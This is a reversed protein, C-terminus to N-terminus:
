AMDVIDAEKVYEASIVSDEGYKEVKGIITVCAGNGIDRFKEAIKGSVSVRFTMAEATYMGDKGRFKRTVLLEVAFPIDGLTDRGTLIGTIIITNMGINM